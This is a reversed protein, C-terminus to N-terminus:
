AGVLFAFQEADKRKNEDLEQSLGLLFAVMESTRSGSAEALLRNKVEPSSNKLQVATDLLAIEASTYESM